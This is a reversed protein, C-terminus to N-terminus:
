QMKFERDLLLHSFIGLGLAIGPVATSLSLVGAIVATSATITMFSISHTFGRHTIKLRSVALFVLLFVTLGLVFSYHIALPSFIMTSLGLSISLFSKVARHVYAKKHDIDPIVAGVAVALGSLLLEHSALNLSQDIFHTLVAATLFGFILHEKFNGM